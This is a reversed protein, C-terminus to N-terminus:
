GFGPRHQAPDGVEEEQICPMVSGILELQVVANQIHENGSDLDTSARVKGPSKRRNVACQGLYDPCERKIIRDLYCLRNESLGIRQVIVNEGMAYGDLPLLM